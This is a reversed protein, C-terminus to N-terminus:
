SQITDTFIYNVGNDGNHVVIGSFTNTSSSGGLSGVQNNAADDQIAGAINETITYTAAGLGTFSYNGRADTTTTLSHPQGSADVWSLTISVGSIGNGTSEDIAAGSLNATPPPPPPVFDPAVQATSSATGTYNSGGSGRAGPAVFARFNEPTGALDSNHYASLQNGDVPKIGLANYDSAFQTYVAASWQWTVSLGPTDAQFTGSWTPNINGPLASTLPSLLGGLLGGGGLGPIVGPMTSTVPLALGALFLNGAATSPVTTEWHNSSSDFTTTATTATPSFTVDANPVNLHYSTGGASFDIASNVLHLTAPTAGLGSVKVESNFWITDGANIATGNFNAQIASFGSPLARDELVELGPRANRLTPRGAPRCGLRRSLLTV